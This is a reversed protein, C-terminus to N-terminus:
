PKPPRLRPNLEQALRFAAQAAENAGKKQLAQGLQYHAEANEPDLKIATEFREIAGM